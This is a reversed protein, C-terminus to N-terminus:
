AGAAAETRAAGPESGQKPPDGIVYSLLAAPEALEPDRAPWSGLSLFSIPLQLRQVLDLLKGPRRCRDLRTLASWDCNWLRAAEWLPGGDRLDLDVPVVCHRHCTENQAILRQMEGAAALNPEFLGPTDVLVTAYSALHRELSAIQEARQILAADFGHEAAALQLRRVEGGHRPLLLLVLTRCGQRQLRAALGLVLDSKGAGADGLFVHCGQLEDWSSRATRLQAQLHARADTPDEGVAEATYLRALHRVSALTAGSSLLRRALPYDSLDDDPLTTRRARAALEGVLQEVRAIEAGLAAELREREVAAPGPGPRQPAGALVAQDDRGDVLVEVAREQGLGGDQRLILSRSNLVRAGAGYRERAKRLAEKLTPARVTSPGEPAPSSTERQWDM